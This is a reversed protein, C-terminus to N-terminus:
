PMFVRYGTYDFANSNRGVGSMERPLSWKLKVLEFDINTGSFGRILISSVLDWFKEEM